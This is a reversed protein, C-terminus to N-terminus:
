RAEDAVIPVIRPGLEKDKLLNGLLRVFAMTTSMEKGAAATAFSAYSDLAPIPLPASSTIRKPMYGGLKARREHLYRMEASDEPPRFFSLTKAQEDSLPLNFRNRFEI